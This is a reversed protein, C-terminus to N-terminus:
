TDLKSFSKNLAKDLKEEAKEWCFSHIKQNVKELKLVFEGCKNGMKLERGEEFRFCYHPHFNNEEERHYKCVWCSEEVTFTIDGITYM